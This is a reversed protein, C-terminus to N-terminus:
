GYVIEPATPQTESGIEELNWLPDPRLGLRSKRRLVEAPHRSRGRSRKSMKVAVTVITQEISCCRNVLEHLSGLFQPHVGQGQGVVAIQVARQFEVALGFRFSEIRDNAVFGINSRSTAESAFRSNRSLL